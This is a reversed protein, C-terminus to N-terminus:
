IWELKYNKNVPTNYLIQFTISERLSKLCLVDAEYKKIRCDGNM